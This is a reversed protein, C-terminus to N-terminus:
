ALAISVACGTRAMARRKMSSCALAFGGRSSLSSSRRTRRLLQLGKNAYVLVWTARFFCDGRLWRVFDLRRGSALRAEVIVLDFRVAARLLTWAEAGSSAVACRHHGRTQIDQMACPAVAHDDILLANAVM